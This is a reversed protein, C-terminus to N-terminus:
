DENKLRKLVEDKHENIQDTLMPRLIELTTALLSTAMLDLRFEVKVGEGTTMLLDWKDTGKVPQIVAAKVRPSDDSM